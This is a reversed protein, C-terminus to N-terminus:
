VAGAKGGKGNCKGCIRERTIVVKATKGNFLDELTAKLPHM